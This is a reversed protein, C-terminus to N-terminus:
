SQAPAGNKKVIQELLQLVNTLFEKNMPITAACFAALRDEFENKVVGLEERKAGLVKLGTSTLDSKLSDWQKLRKELEGRAWDPYILNINRPLALGADTSMWLIYDLEQLLERVSKPLNQPLTSRVSEPSFESSAGELFLSRYMLGVQIAKLLMTTTPDGYDRSKVEVVYIHLETVKSYYVVSRSVFLRFFRSQDASALLRRNDAFDNQRGTIVLSRIIDTWETSTDDHPIQQIFKEWTITQNPPPNIKFVDFTGGIFELTTKPPLDGLSDIAADPYRVIIKREPFKEKFVRNQFDEFFMKYLEAASEKGRKRVDELVNQDFRRRSELIEQLRALLKVFPNRGPMAAISALFDENNNALSEEEVLFPELESTLDLGEIDALADPIRAIVGIPIVLRESDFNRMNRSALKSASFFGVEYGTYSHSPKNRGSAVILLIDADSLAEELESRWNIGLKLDSALTMKFTGLPFANRLGSNIAQALGVDESAYSIFIHLLPRASDAARPVEALHTKREM